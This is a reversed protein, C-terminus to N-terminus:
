FTNEAGTKFVFSDTYTHGDDTKVKYSVQYRVYAKLPKDPILFLENAQLLHNIDNAQTLPIYTVTQNAADKITASELSIRSAKPVRIYIPQGIPNTELNREAFPNPSENYLATKTGTIGQCPYTVVSGNPENSGFDVQKIAGEFNLAVHAYPNDESIKNPIYNKNKAAVYSVGVDKDDNLLGKIHYPASLLGKLANEAYVTHPKNSLSTETFFEVVNLQEDSSFNTNASYAPNAHKVRYEPKKGRYYPNLTNIEEHGSAGETVLYAAHNFAVKNLADNQVLAKFDCAIRQNNLLTLAAQAPATGVNILQSESGTTSGGITTGDKAVDGGSGGGGGCATLAAAAISSVLLTRLFNDNQLYKM